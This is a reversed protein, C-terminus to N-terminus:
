REYKLVLQQTSTTASREIGNILAKADGCLSLERAVITRLEVVTSLTIFYAIIFHIIM